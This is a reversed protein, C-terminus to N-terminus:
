QETINTEITLKSRFDKMGDRNRRIRRWENELVYARDLRQECFRIVDVHVAPRERLSAKQLSPLKLSRKGVPILCPTTQQSLNEFPTKYTLENRMQSHRLSVINYLLVEGQVWLVAEPM